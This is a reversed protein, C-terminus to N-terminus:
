ARRSEARRQQRIQKREEPSLAAYRARAAGLWAARESPRADDRRGRHEADDQVAPPQHEADSPLPPIAALWGMLALPWLRSGPMDTM